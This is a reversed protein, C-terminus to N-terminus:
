RETSVDLADRLVGNEPFLKLGRAWIKRAKEQNGMEKYLNGLQFYTHVHHAEPAAREQLDMLEEFQRIAYPQQGFQPPIFTTGVAKGFRAQWHEPELKIAEDYSAAAKTWVLGQQAGTPTAYMLQSVYATALAVRLNPDKPHAAVEEELAQIAALIKDQNAGLWAFIANAETPGIRKGVLTQVAAQVDAPLPKAPAEEPKGADPAPDAEAVPTAAAAAPGAAASELVEIRRLLDDRSVPSPDRIEPRRAEVSARRPAGGGDLAHVLLGGAVGGVLGCLLYLLSRM